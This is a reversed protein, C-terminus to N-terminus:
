QAHPFCACLRSGVVGLVRKKYYGICSKTAAPYPHPEELCPANRTEHRPSGKSSAKPPRRPNSQPARDAAPAKRLVHEGEAPLLSSNLHWLGAQTRFLLQGGIHPKLSPFSLGLFGRWMRFWLSAMGLMLNRVGAVFTHM